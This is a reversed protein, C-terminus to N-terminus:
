SNASISGFTVKDKNRQVMQPCLWYIQKKADDNNPYFNPVKSSSPEARARGSLKERRGCLALAWPLFVYVDCADVISTAPQDCRATARPGPSVLRITGSPICRLREDWWGCV